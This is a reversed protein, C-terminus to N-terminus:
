IEPEWEKSQFWRVDDKLDIPEPRLEIEFTRRRPPMLRDILGRFKVIESDTYTGAKKFFLERPPFRVGDFDLKLLRREILSTLLDFISGQLRLYRDLPNKGVLTGFLRKFPQDKDHIVAISDFGEPPKGTTLQLDLIMPIGHKYKNYTTRHRDRFRKALLITHKLFIANNNMVKSLLEKEDQISTLEDPEPYDWIKLFFALNAKEADRYFRDLEGQTYSLIKKPLDKLDGQFAICFAGLEEIFMMVKSLAELCILRKIVIKLNDSFRSFRPGKSLEEFLFSHLNLLELRSKLGFSLYNRFLFLTNIGFEREVFTRYEEAEREGM